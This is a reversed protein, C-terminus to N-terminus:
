ARVLNRREEVLDPIDSDWVPEAVLFQSAKPESAAIIRPKQVQHLEEAERIL